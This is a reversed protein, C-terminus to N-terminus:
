ITAGGSISKGLRFPNDDIPIIKVYADLNDYIIGYHEFYKQLKEIDEDDLVTQKANEGISEPESGIFIEGGLLWNGVNKGAKGTIIITGSNMYSGVGDGTKGNVIVTGGSNYQGVEGEVGGKIVIIGGAMYVGVGHRVRGKVIIGGNKMSDGLFRGATGTLNIIAGNNFAGFYDGADGAVIIESEAELGVAISDQGTLGGKESDGIKVVKSKELQRRIAANIDRTTVVRDVM